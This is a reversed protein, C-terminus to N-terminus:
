KGLCGEGGSGGAGGGGKASLDDSCPVCSAAETNTCQLMQANFHLGTPCVFM